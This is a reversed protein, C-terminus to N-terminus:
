QGVTRLVVGLAHGRHNRANLNGMNRCRHTGQFGMSAQAASIVADHLELTLVGDRGIPAGTGLRGRVHHRQISGPVEVVGSGIGPTAGSRNTEVGVDQIDVSNGMVLRDDVVFPLPRHCDAANLLVVRCLGIFVHTQGHQRHIGVPIGENRHGHALQQPKVQAGLHTVKRFAPQVERSGHLQWLVQFADREGIHRFTCNVFPPILQQSQNGGNAAAPQCGLFRQFLHAGRGLAIGQM